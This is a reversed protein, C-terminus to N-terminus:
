KNPAFGFTGGLGQNKFEGPAWIRLMGTEQVLEVGHAWHGNAGTEAEIWIAKTNGGDERIGDLWVDILELETRVQDPALKNLQSQQDM